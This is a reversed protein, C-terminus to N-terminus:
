QSKIVKLADKLVPLVLKDKPRNTAQKSKIIRELSLVPLKYKGLPIAVIHKKEKHFSELGHMTLVIDFIGLGAGAFMPPHLAIPPIYTGGLKTLIKKIKPETIDKFWLDIDQTVVPTGQLTAATLGVIMFEVQQKCLEKLFNEEIKTFINTKVM